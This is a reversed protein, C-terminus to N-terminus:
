EAKKELGTDGSLSEELQIPAEPMSEIKEISINKAITKDGKVIYDISATDGAKIGSLDGINEFKTEQDVALILEKEEDTQYDMYKITFTASSVDVSKVEGWVWSVEEEAAQPNDQTAVAATPEQSFVLSVSSIFVISLFGIMIVLKNKM